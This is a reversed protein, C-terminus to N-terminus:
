AGGTRIQFHCLARRSNFDHILAVHGVEIFVVFGCLEVEVHQAVVGLPREETILLTLVEEHEPIGVEATIGVRRIEGLAIADIDIVQEALSFLEVLRVDSFETHHHCTLAFRIEVVILHLDVQEVRCGLPPHSGTRAVVVHNTGEPHCRGGTLRYARGDGMLDTVRELVLGITVIHAVPSGVVELRAVAVAILARVATAAEPLLTGLPLRVLVVGFLSEVICPRAHPVLLAVTMELM